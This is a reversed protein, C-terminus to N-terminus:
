VVVSHGEDPTTDAPKKSDFNINSVSDILVSNITEPLVIMDKDTTVRLGNKHVVIDFKRVDGQKSKIEARVRDNSVITIDIKYQDSMAPCCILADLVNRDVTGPCKDSNHWFLSLHMETVTPFAQTEVPFLSGASVSSM